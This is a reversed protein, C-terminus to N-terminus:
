PAGERVTIMGLKSPHDDLRLGVVLNGDRDQYAGSPIYSWKKRGFRAKLYEDARVEMDLGWRRKKQKHGSERQHTALCGYCFDLGCGGCTTINEEKFTERCRSCTETM